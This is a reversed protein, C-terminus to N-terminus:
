KPGAGAEGSSGSPIRQHLTILLDAHLFTQNKRVPSRTLKITSGHKAPGHVSRLKGKTRAKTM